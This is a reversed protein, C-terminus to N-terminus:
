SRSDSTLEHYSDALRLLNTDDGRRGFLQIGMPLRKDENVGAPLTVCPLGAFSVPVCVEMWRHYTDVAKDGIQEPYRLDVSFPWVQASPLALADFEQMVDQLWRCFNEHVDKSRGLEDETVSKGQELEWALEEKILKGRQAILHDVDFYQSYKELTTAFRVANYASWLQEFPFLPFTDHVNCVEVICDTTSSVDKWRELARQCHNLVGDQYALYGHWDGLWGVRIPVEPSQKKAFPSKAEFTNLDNVMCQLLMAADKPTRAMPGPTSAPHNMVSAAVSKTEPVADMPVLGATPRLSYINNWGAPNRLSGMNDTGDAVALMGTALAVAAGGSSGGASKSLNYPNRTIGFRDNFTNSGLGGEPTNTKGIIIAGNQILNAVFLDNYTAPGTDAFLRSGGMTTPIGKANSLDKIAIPIGHLWGRNLHLSLDEDAKTAEELLTQRDKLLIIANCKPNIRDIRDLTAVMLERCTISREKQIADSITHADWSLIDQPRSDKPSQHLSANISPM